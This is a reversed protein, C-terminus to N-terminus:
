LSTGTNMVMRVVDATTRPALIQDKLCAIQMNSWAKLRCGRM